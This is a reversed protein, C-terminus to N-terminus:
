LVSCNKPADGEAGGALPRAEIEKQFWTFAEDIRGAWAMLQAMAGPDDSGFRGEFLAIAVFGTAISLVAALSHRWNRRVNRRAMRLSVLLAGLMSPM